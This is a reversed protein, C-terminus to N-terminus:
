VIERSALVDDVTVLDRFQARPNHQSFERSKVVVRALDASTAGTRDMFKKAKEAYLDMFRSRDGSGMATGLRDQAYDEGSIDDLDVGSAYARFSVAKDPHTLKEAGVTLAVPTTGSAVSMWALHGATSGSACANEVNIITSGLLGSDRLAIQGRITEQGTVLGAVANSFYVYPVDSPDVVADELAGTAAETALSRLSRDWHKGFKTMATGIVYVDDM